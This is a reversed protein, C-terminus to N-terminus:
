NQVHLNQRASYVWVDYPCEEKDEISQMLKVAEPLTELRGLSVMMYGNKLPIQVPSYGQKKVFEVLQEANRYEKFSGIIVHYGGIEPKKEAEQARKISDEVFAARQQQLIEQQQRAQLEEKMLAIDESTPMGLVGRVMDCGQLVCLICLAMAVYKFREMNRM